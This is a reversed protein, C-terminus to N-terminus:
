YVDGVALLTNQHASSHSVPLVRDEGKANRDSKKGPHTAPTESELHDAALRYHVVSHSHTHLPCCCFCSPPPPPAQRDRGRRAGTSPVACPGPTSSGDIWRRERRAGQKWLNPPM